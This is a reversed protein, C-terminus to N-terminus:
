ERLALAFFFRPGPLFTQLFFAGLVPGDAVSWTLM